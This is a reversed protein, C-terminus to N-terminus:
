EKFVKGTEANVFEIVTDVAENIKQDFGRRLHPVASIIGKSIEVETPVAPSNKNKRRKRKQKMTKGTRGRSQGPRGFEFMTGVVGPNFGDADECFADAQYGTTVGIAGKKTTYVKSKKIAKACRGSKGSIQRQQEKMIIDAGKKMGKRASQNVNDNLMDLERMFGQLDPLDTQFVDNASM